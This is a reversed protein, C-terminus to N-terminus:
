MLETIIQQLRLTASAESFSQRAYNLAAKSTRRWDANDIFEVIARAFYEAQDHVRLIIESADHIGSSGCTTSVVPVGHALAEVLKIKQGSGARLPVIAVKARRYEDALDSVPGVHDTNPPNTAMSRPVTGVIRLKINPNMSLVFPWVDDLLWKLGRRNPANNSGVFLCIPAPEDEKAIDSVETVHPFVAAPTSPHNRIIFDREEDTITVCIDAMSFAHAEADILRTEFDPASGALNFSQQRLALVDHVLIVKRVNAPAYAFAAGANFYNAVVIDPQFHNLRKGVWALAQKQPWPLDWLMANDTEPQQRRRLPRIATRAWQMPDINLFGSGIKLAGRQHIRDIGTLYQPHFRILLENGAAPHLLFLEVRFGLGRMSRCFAALYAANGAHNQFITSVSVIAVRHISAHERM